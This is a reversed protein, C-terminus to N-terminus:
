EPGATKPSQKSNSESIGIHDLYLLEFTHRTMTLRLRASRKSLAIMSIIGALIVTLGSGMILVYNLPPTFTGSSYSKWVVVGLGMLLALLSIAIAITLNELFRSLISHRNVYERYLEPFRLQVVARCMERIVSTAEPNRWIEQLESEPIRLNTAVADSASSTFWARKKEDLVSKVLNTEDNGFRVATLIHGLVYGFFLLVILSHWPHVTAFHSVPLNSSLAFSAIDLGSALGILAVSGPATYELLDRLVVHDYFESLNM